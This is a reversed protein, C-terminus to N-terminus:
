GIVPPARDSSQCFGPFEPTRFSSPIVAGADSLRVDAPVAQAHPAKAGSTVNCATCHAFSRLHCDLSHHTSPMLASVFIFVSVVFTAAFGLRGGTFGGFLRMEEM